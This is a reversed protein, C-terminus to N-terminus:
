TPLRAATSCSFDCHPCNAWVVKGAPDIPPEIGLEGYPDLHAVATDSFFDRLVAPEDALFNKKQAECEFCSGYQAM